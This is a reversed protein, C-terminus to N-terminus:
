KQKSIVGTSNDGRLRRKKAIGIGMGGRGKGARGKLITNDVIWNPATPVTALVTAKPGSTDRGKKAPDRDPARYRYRSPFFVSLMPAPSHCYLVMDHHVM